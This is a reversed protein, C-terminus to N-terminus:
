YYEDLEEQLWQEFEEVNMITGNETGRGTPLPFIALKVKREKFDQVYEKRFFDLELAEPKCDLYMDTCCLAAFEGFPWIPFYIQGNDDSYTKLGNTTGIIWVSQWDAIRKITYRFRKEADLKLVEEIEKVTPM